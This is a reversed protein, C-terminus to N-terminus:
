ERGIYKKKEQEKNNINKNKYCKYNQLINLNKMVLIILEKGNKCVQRYMKNFDM